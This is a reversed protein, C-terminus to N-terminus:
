FAQERNCEFISTNFKFLEGVMRLICVGSDDNQLLIFFGRGPLDDFEFGMGEHNFFKYFLVAEMYHNTYINSISLFFFDSTLKLGNTRVIIEPEM